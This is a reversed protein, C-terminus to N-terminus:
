VAPDATCRNLTRINSPARSDRLLGPRFRRYRSNLAIRVRICHTLGATPETQLRGSNGAEPVGPSRMESM